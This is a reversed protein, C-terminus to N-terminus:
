MSAINMIFERLQRMAKEPLEIDDAANQNSAVKADFRPLSMIEVVENLPTHAQHMAGNANMTLPPQVRASERFSTKTPKIDQRQAVMLKLVRQMVDVNWDVLRMSKDMLLQDEQFSKDYIDDLESHDTNAGMESDNKAFKKRSASTPLAWYTKLKGKGISQVTDERPTIWHKKGAAKLLDATDQSVQLINLISTEEMRATTNVTDGFLQFRSRESRLVGATVPDSHIGVRIGRNV